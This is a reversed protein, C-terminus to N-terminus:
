RSPVCTWLLTQRAYGVRPLVETAGLIIGWALLLISLAHARGARHRWTWVASWVGSAAVAVVALLYGTLGWGCRHAYPWFVIAIGLAVSLALRLLAPWSAAAARDKEVQTREAPTADSAEPFMQADSTSELQRDINALEKDWDKDSM